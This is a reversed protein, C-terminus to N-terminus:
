SRRYYRELADTTLELTKRAKEGSKFLLGLYLLDILYLQCLRGELFDGYLPIQPSTHHWTLLTIEAAKGVVSDPDSTIAITPAGMDRALRLSNAVTSTSGTHSVGIMASSESITSAIITQTYGDRYSVADIGAKVFLHAAEDCVAAAGGVGILVVKRSSSIADISKQIRSLDLLKQTEVLSAALSNALKRSTEILSDSESIELPINAFRGESSSEAAVALKMDSYGRYGLARTFRSITAESVGLAEAFETISLELRKGSHDRLYNAVLRESKRLNGYREQIRELLESDTQTM